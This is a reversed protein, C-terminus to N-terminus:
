YKIRPDLYGYIMDTFLNVLIFILSILFVIGNLVYYDATTIARLLLDGIGNLNFTTETLIAGGLLYGVNLGIVTVTPILANKRAHKNIVVREKCGKARATRIYDQQLVELMSSRTQRTISAITIFSLAFVPLALHIFYDLILFIEGSLLSDIIRFGTVPTPDEYYSTKFGVAPFLQLYYGFVLQLILGLWFVPISVGVLSIGRTITDKAKNRHTASIIGTKIGIFSAIIMSFFTLDLTRPFREWILGWVEQGPNIALSDGWNGLFLNGIYDFFQIVINRDLGLRHLEAYYQEWTWQQPLQALVPDGPMMRSLVFTIILVGFLVPIMQLIRRAM